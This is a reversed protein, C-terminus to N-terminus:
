PSLRPLPTSGVPMKLSFQTPPVRTHAKSAKYVTVFRKKFTSIWADNFPATDTAQIAAAVRPSLKKMAELFQEYLLGGHHMAPNSYKEFDAYQLIDVADPIIEGDHVLVPIIIDAGAAREMMLDLEHVCWDSAFYDRSLIAIMVKSSALSIGLHEASNSGVPIQEDIFVQAGEGLDRQLYSELAPKFTNRAWSTWMNKERRYSIFVHHQYPM